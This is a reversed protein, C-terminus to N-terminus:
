SWEALPMKIILSLEWEAKQCFPLLINWRFM